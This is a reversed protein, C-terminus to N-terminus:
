QQEVFQDLVPRIKSGVCSVVAAGLKNYQQGQNPCTCAVVVRLYRCLCHGKQQPRTKFLPQGGQSNDKVYIAGLCSWAARWLSNPGVAWRCCQVIGKRWSNQVWSVEVCTSGAKGQRPGRPLQRPRGECRNLGWVYGLFLGLVGRQKTGRQQNPCGKSM